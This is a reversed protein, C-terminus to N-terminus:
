LSKGKQHKETKSQFTIGALALLVFGINFALHEHWGMKELIGGCSCPVQEAFNLVIIIYVTFMVMLSFSAYLGYLITKPFFLLLSIIIEITPILWAIISAYDTLIPSQGIQIEFMQLDLIKNVAAYLWLLVFLYCIVDVIMQKTKDSLMVKLRKNVTTEM